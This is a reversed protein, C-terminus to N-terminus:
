YNLTFVINGHGDNATEYHIRPNGELRRAMDSLGDRGSKQTVIVTETM